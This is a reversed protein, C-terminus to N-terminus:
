TDPDCEKLARILSNLVESRRSHSDMLKRTQLARAAEEIAVSIRSTAPDTAAMAYVFHGRFAERVKKVSERASNENRGRKIAFMWSDIGRVFYTDTPFSARMLDALESFMADGAQRGLSNNIETVGSIDLIVVVAPYNYADPYEEALQRYSEWSHFGTLLDSELAADTLVLLSGVPRGHRNFQPHFDCRLPHPRGQDTTYFQFSADRRNKQPSIPLHAANVFEELRMEKTLPVDPLLKRTRDNWLSIRDEYDFMVVGQDLSEFASAQLATTQRRPTVIFSFSYFVISALPYLLM